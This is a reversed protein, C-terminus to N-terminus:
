LRLSKRDLVVRELSLFKILEKQSSKLVHSIVEFFASGSVAEMCISFPESESFCEDVCTEMESTYADPYLVTEYETAGIVLPLM